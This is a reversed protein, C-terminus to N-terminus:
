VYNKELLFLYHGKGVKDIKAYKKAVFDLFVKANQSNTVSLRITKEITYKMVMLCVKNFHTWKEHKARQIPSSNENIM